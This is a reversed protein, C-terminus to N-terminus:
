NCPIPSHSLAVDDFWIEGDGLEWGIRFSAYSPAWNSKAVTTSGNAPDAAVWTTTSISSHVGDLSVDLVDPGYKVQVCQWTAAMIKAEPDRIDVEGQYYLNSQFKGINMGVRVEHADNMVNGAEFWVVHGQPLPGTVRLWLRAYFTNNPAPFIASGEFALMSSFGQHKLHLSKSGGHKQTADLSFMGNGNLRPTWKSDISAGEFGDSFLPANGAGASGVSGASGASGGASGTAGSSGQAGAGSSASGALALNGGSGASGPAGGGGSGAISHTTGTSGAIAANGASSPTAGASGASAGGSAADNGCGTLVSLGLFLWALCATRLM